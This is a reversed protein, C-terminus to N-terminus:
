CFLFRSAQILLLSVVEHLSMAHESFRCSSCVASELSYLGKARLSAEGVASDLRWQDRSIEAGDRTFRM